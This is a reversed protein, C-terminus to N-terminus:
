VDHNLVLCYKAQHRNKDMYKLNQINMYNLCLTTLFKLPLDALCGLKYPVQFIRLIAM